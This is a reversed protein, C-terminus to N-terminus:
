EDSDYDDFASLYFEDNREKLKLGFQTVQNADFGQSKEASKITSSKWNEVSDKKVATKVPKLATLKSVIAEKQAPSDVYSAYIRLIPEGTKDDFTLKSKPPIKAKVVTVKPLTNASNANNKTDSVAFLRIPARRSMLNAQQKNFDQDESISAEVIQGAYVAGEQTVKPEKDDARVLTYAVNVSDTAKTFPAGILPKLETATQNEAKQETNVFYATRVTTTTVNDPSDTAKEVQALAAAARVDNIASYFGNAIANGVSQGIQAYYIPTTTQEERKTDLIYKITTTLPQSETSVLEVTINQPEPSPTIDVQKETTTTTTKNEAVTFAQPVLTVVSKEQTERQVVTKHEKPEPYLPTNLQENELLIMQPHIVQTHVQSAQPHLHMQNTADATYPIFELSPFRQILQHQLKQLFMPDSQYLAQPPIFLGEAGTNILDQQTPLSNYNQVQFQHPVVRQPSFNMTAPLNYESALQLAAGNRILSELEPTSFSTSKSFGIPPEIKAVRFEHEPYAETVEYTPKPKENHSVSPESAEIVVIPKESLSLNPAPITHIAGTGGDTHVVPASSAARVFEYEPTVPSMPPLRATTKWPGNAFMNRSPAYHKVAFRQPPKRYLVYPARQSAAQVLRTQTWPRQMNVGPRFPVPARRRNVTSM